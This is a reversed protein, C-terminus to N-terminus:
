SNQVLILKAHESVIMRTRESTNKTGLGQFDQLDFKVRRGEELVVLMIATMHVVKTNLIMHDLGSRDESVWFRQCYNTRINILPSVQYPMTVATVFM